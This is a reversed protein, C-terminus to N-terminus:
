NRQTSYERTWTRQDSRRGGRAVILGLAAKLRSGIKNRVVASKHVNKKGIIKVLSMNVRSDKRPEKSPIFPPDPWPTLPKHLIAKPIVRLSFADNRTFPLTKVVSHSARAAPHNRDLPGTPPISYSIIPGFTGPTNHKFQLVDTCRM